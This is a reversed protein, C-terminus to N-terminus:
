IMAGDGGLWYGDISANSVMVGFQNFYYWKDNYKVWGVKPMGNDLYYWKDFQKIWGNVPEGSPNTFRKFTPSINNSGLTTAETLPKFITTNNSNNYSSSTSTNSSSDSSNNNSSSTSRDSSSNSSDNNNSTYKDIKGTIDEVNYNTGNIKTSVIVKIYNNKDSSKLKYEEEDAGSIDTYDGAKKSARQWQYDLSPKTGDYKVKAKLKHNVEETGSISVSKLVSNSSNDSTATQGTVTIVKTVTINSGDAASATIIASGDSIATVIGQSNVNAVSPNSSTWTVNKNTATNPTINPTLSVTGGKTTISSNGGITIGIVKVDAPNTSGGTGTTNGQESITITKSKNVGSGDNATAKITVTGKSKATVIGSNDVTAINTDSSTWTLTKDAADSPLITATIKGTQGVTWNLNTTDLAISNVKSIDSSNGTGIRIKSSDVNANILMLKINYNPVWFILNDKNCNAFADIGIKSISDPLIVTTLNTCDKFAEGYINTVGSPITINTLSSCGKFTAPNIIKVGSPIIIHNLSSCGEFASDKISTVGSPITIDTLSSCGYFANQNISTLNNSLIVTQLGSCGYFAENNMEIVNDSMEVRKLNKCGTFAGVKISVVEDPIIYSEGQKAAPYIVIKTGPKNYLVGDVSKYIPNNQDVVINELSSCGAFASVQGWLERNVSSPIVVTKLSSCGQFMGQPIYNVGSPISVNKLTSCNKFAYESVGNVTYKNGNIILRSPINLTEIKFNYTLDVYCTNDDDNVDFNIGNIDIGSIYNYTGNYTWEGNDGSYNLTTDQQSGGVLNVSSDSAFATTTSVLSTCMIIMLIKSILQKNRKLM